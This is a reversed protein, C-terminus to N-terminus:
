REMWPTSSSLGLLSPLEDVFEMVGDAEAWDGAQFAAVGVDVALVKACNAQRGAAVDGPTVGVYVTRAGDRQGCEVMLQAILGAKTESLGSDSCVMADVHGADTWGLRQLVIEMVTCDLDSCMGVRLGESRMRAMTRLAGPMPALAPSFQFFRKLEKRYSQSLRHLGAEDMPETMGTQRLVAAIAQDPSHGLAFSATERDMSLGHARFAGTIGAYVANAHNVVLGALDLVVLAYSDGQKQM